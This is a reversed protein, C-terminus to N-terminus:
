AIRAPKAPTDSTQKDPEKRLAADLSAIALDHNIVAAERKQLLKISAPRFSRRYCDGCRVMQLGFIPAVRELANRPRSHYGAGSGCTTCRFEKEFFTNLFTPSTRSKM